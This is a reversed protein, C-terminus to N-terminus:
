YMGLLLRTEESMCEKTWAPEWVLEFKVDNVQDVSRIAEIVSSPLAQAEPCSPSTLTMDVFVIAQDDVELRYILGLDYVNVPIEPDYVTRVAALVKAHLAEIQSETIVAVIRESADLGSAAASEVMPLSVVATDRSEEGPIVTVDTRVFDNKEHM